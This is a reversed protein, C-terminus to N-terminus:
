QYIVTHYTDQTFHKITCRIKEYTCLSELAFGLMLNFFKKDLDGQQYIASTPM